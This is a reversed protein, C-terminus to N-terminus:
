CVERRGTDALRELYTRAAVVPFASHAVAVTSLMVPPVVLRSTGTSRIPRHGPLDAVRNLAMLPGTPFFCATSKKLSVPTFNSKVTPM